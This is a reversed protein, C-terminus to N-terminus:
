IERKAETLYKKVRPEIGDVNLDNPLVIITRHRARSTAVNFRNPNLSFNLGNNPILLICIDVTLGQIRDITEVTVRESNSVDSYIRQQLEKVTSVYFSLVAITAKPNLRYLEETLQAVQTIANQPTKVGAAIPMEILHVSKELVPFTPPYQLPKLPPQVSQLRGGYFANTLYTSYPSLRFTEQLMFKSRTLESAALTSLGNFAKILSPHEIDADTIAHIPQLQMQDGVIICQEGLYRAAGITALFAQSAEEVIVLDFHAGTALLAKESMKYYSCLLLTGALYAYDAADKLKPLRKSEDTSVSTKYVSGLQLFDVLGEKEALEMLATNTLATVMVKKGQRLFTACLNAILFSKGTGPPGQIIMDRHITLQASLLLSATNDNTLPEPNWTEDWVDISVTDHFRPYLYADRLLSILNELYATPPEQPGLILATGTPLDALFNATAGRFGIILRDNEEFRYWAPVLECFRQAKYQITRYTAHQWNAPRDHERAPVIATVHENRRPFPRKSSFRLIANGRLEDIGALTAVYLKGAERLNIASENLIKAHEDEQLKYEQILLREHQKIPIQM